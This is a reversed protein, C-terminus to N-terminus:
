TPLGWRRLVLLRRTEFVLHIGERLDVLDGGEVSAHLCVLRGALEFAAFSEDGSAVRANASGSGNQVGHLSCLDEDGVQRFLLFIGVVRLLHDLVFTALDVQVFGIQPGGVRALLGDLLRQLRHSGDVNEDVVMGELVHALGDEIDRLILPQLGEVSVNM